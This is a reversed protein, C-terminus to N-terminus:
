SRNRVARAFAKLDAPDRLFVSAIQDAVWLSDFGITEFTMAHQALKDWSCTQTLLVGFKTTM